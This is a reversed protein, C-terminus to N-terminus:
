VPSIGNFIIHNREVDPMNLYALYIEWFSIITAVSTPMKYGRDFATGLLVNMGALGSATQSYIFCFVRLFRYSDRQSIFYSIVTSGSRASLAWIGM